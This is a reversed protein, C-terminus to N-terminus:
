TAPTFTFAGVGTLEVDAVIPAGYEDSGVSGPLTAVVTGAWQAGDATNPTFALAVEDLDNTVLYQYLGTATLDSEVSATFGDTRKQSAPRVTGDLLTRENGIDEYEHTITAGLVEGSFDQPTEGLTLTGDGLVTFAAM